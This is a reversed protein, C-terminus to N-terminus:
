AGCAFDAAFTAFDFVDTDGDGDLDGGVFPPLGTLGFYSAFVGFDFVDTDGDGDLDGACSPPPASAAEYAGMDVVPAAGLGTDLAAPDDAFRIAGDLDTMMGLPVQANEGADICPSGPQLHLDGAGTNAFMPDQDICGVVKKPELPDGGEEPLGLIDQIDCYRLTFSGGLQKRWYPGQIEPKWATNAWLISNRLDTTSNWGGYVAADEKAHNNFFSCNAVLMHNSAFSYSAFGGGAGGLEGGGSQSNRADAYNNAFVCNVVTSPAWAIMGGGITARNNVFVCDVVTISAYFSSLGGGYGLDNGISYFPRVQNGNFVCRAITIPQDSYHYVGGGSSDPSSFVCTNAQFLCDSIAPASSGGMFIGGGNSLHVYNGVFSCEEIVPSSDWLYMGGGPGFGAYNERFTCGRITPSGGVAYLGSGYLLPDGAPTGAPGYAGREVIFGDLVAGSDVGSAVLVHASNPTNFAIPPSTDDRGIDGSLVTVNVAPDRQDRLSETGAFGGYMGVGSKMVFSVTSDSDSPTYIGAKVWIEDGASAASLADQLDGFASEWEVGDGVGAGADVHWVAAGATGVMLMSGLGTVLARSIKM